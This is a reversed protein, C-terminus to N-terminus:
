GDGVERAIAQDVERQIAGDIAAAFPRMSPEWLGHRDVIDVFEELDHGQLSPMPPDDDSEVFHKLEHDVLAKRQSPELTEWVDLAVTVLFYDLPWEDGMESRIRDLEEKPTSLFAERGRIVTATAWIERRLRRQAKSRFICVLRHRLVHPHHEAAIGRAIELVEPADTFVVPDPM